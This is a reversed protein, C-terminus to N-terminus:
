FILFSVQAEDEYYAWENPGLTSNPNVHELERRATLIEVGEEGEGERNCALEWDAETPGQVFLRGTSYSAKDSTSLSMGGIGDFWWYQNFFRDKGLPRCRAVGYNRRFETEVYDDRKTNKSLQLELENRIRDTERRSVTTPTAAINNSSEILAALKGKSKPVSAESGAVSDDDDALQDEEDDAETNGGAPLSFLPKMETDTSHNGLGNAYPEPQIKPKEGELEAKQEM